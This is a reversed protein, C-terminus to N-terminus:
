GVKLMGKSDGFSDAKVSMQQLMWVYLDCLPTEKPYRHHSGTKIKGGAKGVLIIPLDDHNHRDGDSIGSGYVIMCNDLLSGSGEKVRALADVFYAFHEAHFANIKQIKEQKESSKGHHSVDHHGEPVGINPYGRNNGENCVMFTAIRTSDSQIALALLDMMSKCHESWDRPVGAPRPFNPIGDEGLKLKDSRVLRNEVDRVAYLYEDLKRKDANGLKKQLDNADELVFDLVSKRQAQRVSKSKAKEAANEGGFLRDFVASPNNEKALPSTSNRWALNSPYACSYGSDCNGAQASGELGLELSAFRTKNGLNQAMVQDVSVSNQIDAGNTKKPHSGTLFSAGSRAHDGGGDGHARAGDLTLGTLVSVYERHPALCELTKNLQYRPGDESPTWAAMHAGNPVSFFLSRLPAKAEEASMVSRTIPAMAELWPLGVVTGVGRLLTRRSIRKASM